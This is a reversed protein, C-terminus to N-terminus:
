LSIDTVSDPGFPLNLDVARSWDTGQLTSFTLLFIAVLGVMWIFSIAQATGVSTGYRALHSLHMLSLVLVYAVVIGFPILLIYLPFSLSM